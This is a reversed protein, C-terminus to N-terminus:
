PHGYGKKSGFGVIGIVAVAICGLLMLYFMFTYDIIYDPSGAFYYGNEWLQKKQAKAAANIANLALRPIVFMLFTSSLGGVILMPGIKSYNKLIMVFLVIPIALLIVDLLIVGIYGAGSDVQSCMKATNYTLSFFSLSVHTQADLLYKLDAKVGLNLVIPLFHAILEFIMLGAAVKMLISNSNSMTNGLSINPRPVSSFKQTLNNFVNGHKGLYDPYNRIFGVKTANEYINGDKDVQYFRGTKTSQLTGKDYVFLIANNNTIVNRTNPDLTGLREYRGDKTTYVDYKINSYPDANRYNTNQYSIKTGCYKCFESDRDITKGCRTCNM